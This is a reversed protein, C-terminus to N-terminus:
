LAVPRMDVIHTEHVPLELPNGEPNPLSITRETREVRHGAGRIAELIFSPIEERTSYRPLGGDTSVQFFDSRGHISESTYPERAPLSDQTTEIGSRVSHSSSRPFVIAGLVFALAAVAAIGAGRRLSAFSLSRRAPAAVLAAGSAGSCAQQLMQSELFTLACQRWGHPTKELQAILAVRASEDLEGEVLLDIEEQSIWNTSTNTM